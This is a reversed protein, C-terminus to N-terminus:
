KLRFTKPAFKCVLLYFIPIFIITIILVAVTFSLSSTKVEVCLYSVFYVIGNIISFVPSKVVKVENYPQFVYYMTLHFFSFFCSLVIICALVPLVRFIDTGVKCFIGYILLTGSLAFAPILNLILISKLRAQFNKLIAGKERYYGYKLLSVDCNFFFAKCIREGSALLYMFFVFAPTGNTIMGWFNEKQIPSMFFTSIILGAMAVFILGLRIRLPTRVLNKHRNFFLANLYDYGKKSEYKQSNLDAETISKENIVVDSKQITSQLEELSAIDELSITLRYYLPYMKYRKLKFYCPIGALVCLFSVFAEAVIIERGFWEAFLFPVAYALIISLGAMLWFFMMNKTGIKLRSSEKKRRKREFELLMIQEGVLRTAALAVTVFVAWKGFGILLLAPAFYIIDCIVKLHIKSLYYEKPQMHMLGILIFEQKGQDALSSNLISGFLFNLVLLQYFGIPLRYINPDLGSYSCIATAPLYLFLFVYIFKKLFGYLFQFIMYLIAIIKKSDVQGYISEPVKKGIFPLSRVFYILSNAGQVSVMLQGQIFSKLM